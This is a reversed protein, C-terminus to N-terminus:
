DWLGPSMGASDIRGRIWDGAIELHAVPVDSEGSKALRATSGPLFGEGGIVLTQAEATSVGPTLSSVQPAAPDDGAAGSVTLSYHQLGGSLTGSHSVRIQYVGPAPP